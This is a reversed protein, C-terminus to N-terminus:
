LASNDGFKANWEEYIKLLKTSVSPRIKKLSHEFDKYKIPRMQKVDISVLQDQSMERVPGLAADKALETLDSGSYLETQLALKEIESKKLPSGQKSLLMNLLQIRASVDPLGVYVRKPFRRLVADDLEQPRNTAGMVLIRDGANSDVGDFRMMFETKLRRVSDSEGEKRECLLSDIEDIFVVTPQVEKAVGFLARVMKEGEGVWKSTLTSASINFFNSKAEAAVAKALLTKGTGPPGFLLLGRAPTRLGTFFEPRLAPLIVIEKLAQKAVEQGAVDALRVNHSGPEVLDDLIKNVMEKPVNKLNVRQRLPTNRSNSDTPQSNPSRYQERSTSPSERPRSPRSTPKSSPIWPKREESKKTVVANRTTTSSPIRSSKSKINLKSSNGTSPSKDDRKRTKSKSINAESPRNEDQGDLLCELRDEAMKLNSKMKIQLRAAKDKDDRSAGICEEALGNKLEEIGKLYWEVAENKDGDVSEDIELANSIYEFSIKHYEKVRALASLGSM